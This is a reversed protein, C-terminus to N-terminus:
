GLRKISNFWNRKLSYRVRPLFITKENEPDDSFPDFGAAVSLCFTTSVRPNIEFPYVENEPTLICQINYIGTPRFQEHFRKSYDIVAENVETEARITIGRKLGIKVPVVAKLKGNQDAAVLVTYEVGTKLEQAIIDDLNAKYLVKYAEIEAESNL